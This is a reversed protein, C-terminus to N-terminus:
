IGGQLDESLGLANAGQLRSVPQDRRRSRKCESMEIAIKSVELDASLEPRM